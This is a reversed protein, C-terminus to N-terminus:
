SRPPMRKKGRNGRSRGNNLIASEWRSSASSAYNVYDAQPRRQDERTCFSIAHLVLQLLAYANKGEEPLFIEKEPIIMGRDAVYVRDVLNASIGTETAVESMRKYENGGWADEKLDTNYAFICHFYRFAGDFAAGGGRPAGLPKGLPKLRKLKAAGKLSKVMEARTLLSKVEVTILAAEAPLIHSDGSLFASNRQHNYVIVDIQGSTNGKIDAIEGGVVKYCSPLNDMLLTRVPIERENGKTQAHKFADTKKFAAMMELLSAEFKNLLSSKEPKVRNRTNVRSNM